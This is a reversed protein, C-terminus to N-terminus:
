QRTGCMRINSLLPSHLRRLSGIALFGIMTEMHNLSKPHGVSLINEWELNSRTLLWMLPYNFVKTGIGRGVVGLSSCLEWDSSADRFVHDIACVGPILAPTGLCRLVFTGRIPGDFVFSCGRICCVLRTGRGDRISQEGDRHGRAM